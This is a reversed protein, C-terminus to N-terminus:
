LATASAKYSKSLEAINKRWHGVSAGFGHVLLIPQGCGATAYNITHGRWTWKHLSYPPTAKAAAGSPSASPVPRASTTSTTEFPNTAAALPSARRSLSTHLTRQITPAVAAHLAPRQACAARAQRSVRRQATSRGTAAQMQPKLTSSARHVFPHRRWHQLTERWQISPVLLSLYKSALFTAYM